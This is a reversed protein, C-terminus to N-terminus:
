HQKTHNLGIQQHSVAPSQTAESGMTTRKYLPLQQRIFM